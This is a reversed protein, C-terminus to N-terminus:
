VDSIKIRSGQGQSSNLPHSLMYGQFKFSRNKLLAWLPGVLKTNGEKPMESCNLGSCKLLGGIYGPLQQSQNGYQREKPLFFPPPCPGRDWLLFALMWFLPPFSWETAGHGWRLKLSMSTLFLPHEPQTCVESASIFKPPCFLMFCLKGKLCLRKGM